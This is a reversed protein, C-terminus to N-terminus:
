KLLEGAIAKLIPYVQQPVVANGLSRLRDVRGSFGDDGRRVVPKIGWNRWDGSQIPTYGDTVLPGTRRRPEGPLGCSSTDSAHVLQTFPFGEPENGIERRERKSDNPDTADKPSDSAGTERSERRTGGEVTGVNSQQSKSYGIIFCRERRHIAGVGCAPVVITRTTYGEGELGALCTDIGMRQLASVNEALVFTPRAESIVRLMEFWLGSREGSLGAQRGAQSIDQCPFGGSVLDTRGRFPKADFTKIDDHIPVGPFNKALVRQCFPNQEVFQITEFGAWHAALDIGGIGSFLSLHTV